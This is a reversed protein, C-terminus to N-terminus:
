EDVQQGVGDFERGVAPADVNRGPAIIVERHDGHLVGANADGLFVLVRHELFEALDPVVVRALLLAGPEPERQSAPEDLEMTPSDPEFAFEALARRERERNRKPSSRRTRWWRPRNVSGPSGISM